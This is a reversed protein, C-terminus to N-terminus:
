SEAQPTKTERVRGPGLGGPAVLHCETLLRQGLSMSVEDQAIVAM